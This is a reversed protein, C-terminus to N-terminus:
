VKVECYIVLIRIITQSPETTNYGFYVISVFGNSYLSSVVIIGREVEM